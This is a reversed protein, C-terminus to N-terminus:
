VIALAISFVIEKQLYKESIRLVLSSYLIIIIIIIIIIDWLLLLIRMPRYASSGIDFKCFDFFGTSVSSMTLNINNIYTIIVVIIIIIIVRM